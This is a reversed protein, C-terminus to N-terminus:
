SNEISITVVDDRLDSIRNSFIKNPDKCIIKNLHEQNYCTQPTDNLLVQSEWMSYVLTNSQPPWSVVNSCKLLENRM